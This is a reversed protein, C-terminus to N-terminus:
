IDIGIQSIVGMHEKRRRGEKIKDGLLACLVRVNLVPEIM